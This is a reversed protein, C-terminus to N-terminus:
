MVNNMKAKTKLDCQCITTSQAAVLFGVAQRRLNKSPAELDMFRSGKWVPKPNFRTVALLHLNEATPQLSQTGHAPEM